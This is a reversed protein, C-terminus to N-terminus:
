RATVLQNLRVAGGSSSASVRANGPVGSTTTRLTWTGGAVTATGIVQGGLTPGAFVTIVSGNVTGTGALRWDNPARFAAQTFAITEAPRVTVTVLGPSLGGRGDSVVYVFTAVGSFGANPTFTVTTPTFSLTGSPNTFDVAVVALPDGNPDSDNLLVPVTVATNLATSAADPNATPALNPALNVTVIVTSTAFGGRGDTITYSFADSGVFGAAPTYVVSLGGSITVTGNVPQTTASVTIPDGDPDSDNALVQITVPTNSLTTAQDAVAVPATNATATGAVATVQMEDAGGQASTVRITGPPAIVNPILVAGVAPVLTDPISGFGGITLAPQVVSDMSVAQVLLTRATPDYTAEVVNVKDNLKVNFYVPALAGAGNRANAHVLCLHTPIATQRLQVYHRDVDSAMPVSTVGAPPGFPPVLTVGDPGLVGTCPAPFVALQPVTLVSPPTQQTRAQPSAGAKVMVDIQQTVATRAYSARDPAVPSPIAGGFYRGVLSFNTVDTIVTTTAGNIVEIRFRNPDLPGSSTQYLGQVSGTVPGLRAPDAIYKRGPLLPDTWAPLEAGGPTNAPVVFPGISGQLACTFDGPPCAIGIDETYFLRTRLGGVQGPFTRIGYPTYIKYTGSLPLDRLDFRLRAFVIQAGPVVAGTSFAGEMGQVLVARGGNPFDAIADAAFYFHEDSFNTPFIEPATAIPLALCYGANLEYPTTPTCFELTIGTKDQYWVPFGNVPDVPGVRGLEALATAPALLLAVLLTALRLENRCTAANM